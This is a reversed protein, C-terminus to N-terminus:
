CTSHILAAVAHDAAALENYREVAAHSELVEVAVGHARLEEVTAEMVQLREQQGQSLVVTTAGHDLLEHVDMPQIGPRHSTGTEDWDWARGGGPWLKADRFHGLDTTISGWDLSRISPSRAVM